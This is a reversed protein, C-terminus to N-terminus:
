KDIVLAYFLPYSSAKFRSFRQYSGVHVDEKRFNSILKLLLNKKHANKEIFNNHMFISSTDAIPYIECTFKIEPHESNLQRIYSRLLRIPFRRKGHCLYPIFSIPAPVIHIQRTDKQLEKTLISIIRYPEDVHELVSHSLILNSSINKIYDTLFSLDQGNIKNLRVDESVLGNWAEHEKVDLGYYSHMKKGCNLCIKSLVNYYRASGCGYDLMSVYNKNFNSVLYNLAYLASIRSPSMKYLEDYSFMNTVDCSVMNYDVDVLWRKEFLIEAIFQFVMLVKQFFTNKVDGDVEIYKLYDVLM